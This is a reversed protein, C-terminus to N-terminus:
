PRDVTSWDLFTVTGGVSNFIVRLGREGWLSAFEVVTEDDALVSVDAPNEEYEADGDPVLYRFKLTGAVNAKFRLRARETNVWGIGIDALAVDGSGVAQNEVLRRALPM